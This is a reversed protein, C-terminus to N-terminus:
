ATTIFTVNVKCLESSFFLVHLETRREGERWLHHLISVLYQNETRGTVSRPSLERRSTNERQEQREECVPRLSLSINGCSRLTADTEM